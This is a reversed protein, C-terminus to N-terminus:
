PNLRTATWVGCNFTFEDRREVKRTWVARDHVRGPGELWLEVTDPWLRFGGWHPPRPISGEKDQSSVGFRKEVEAVQQALQARSTLPKSQLSAWAGIRNSLPRVNFYADSEEVPSKIAPGSMRVQRHLADWHFVAAAREHATLHEGKHSHYNTFFVIYGPDSVLHKCLVVRAHPEGKSDVTALVLANPNPQLRKRHATDYWETFLTFPEPSLPEPLFANTSM